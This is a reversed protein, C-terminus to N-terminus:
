LFGDSIDPDEYTKDGVKLTHLSISSNSKAQRTSQHLQSLNSLQTDRAIGKM